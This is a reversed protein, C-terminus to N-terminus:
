FQANSKKMKMMSKVRKLLASFETTKFTFLFFIANFVLTMVVAKIIFGLLGSTPIVAIVFQCVVCDGVILLGYLFYLIYYKITKEGFVKRYIILPDIIEYTLARAIISALLIGTLGFNKGLVIDLFINIVAAVLPVYKGFVFLGATTRYAYCPYHVNSIYYLVCIAIVNDVSLDFGKGIWLNIFETLFICLGAATFGYFWVDLYLMELFVSYKKKPTAVANLNGISSVVSNNVTSGLTKFISLVMKYNSYLGVTIVNIYMTIFISDTSDILISGIKYVILAKVNKIISALESSEVKKVSKEKLFPYIKDAKRAVYYNNLITFGVVSILYLIFQKTVILFISQVAVQLVYFIQQYIEVIYSKQDAIILSKKYVLFYSCVSNLLFLLYLLTINEKVYSVEGIIDGLFPVLMLGLVAIVIGVGRYCYAYLKMLSKIKETDREALPKYLSFVMANGIGLEAFSLMSLIDSFLGNVGLYEAGLVKIFITRSIFGVLNKVVQMLLSVTTNKLTYESRSMQKNADSAM